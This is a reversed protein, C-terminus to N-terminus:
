GVPGEEREGPARVVVDDLPRRISFPMQPGRGFRVMLQAREGQLDLWREFRPRVSPVEIPQNIFANRIGLATAQLAFREYCRGAEVWAAPGDDETVFVAVGASSAINAADTKM